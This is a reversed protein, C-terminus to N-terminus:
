QKPSFANQQTIERQPLKSLFFCLSFMTNAKMCAYHTKAKDRNYEELTLHVRSVVNNGFLHALM